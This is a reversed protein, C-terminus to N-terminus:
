DSEAYKRAIEALKPRDEEVVQTGPPRVPGGARNLSELAAKIGSIGYGPRLSRVRSIPELREAFVRRMGEQDGAAGRKWFDLCARPVFAALASTYARAGAPLAELAHTEGEAVWVLRNRILDGLARGMAVGGSPDKFGIVNPLQALRTIVSPWYDESGRPYLVIGIRVSECVDRFYRYAGDASESGYPPSFVLAADAGAKEANEVMRLALRYGGGAGVIVPLKGAAGAVAADAMARQEGADMTFLEGLGGGVVISMQEVPRAAHFAVNRRLGDADLDHNKRFPTVLFNHVGRLAERLQGIDGRPAAYATPRIAGVAALVGANRLLDRRPVTLDLEKKRGRGPRRSKAAPRARFESSVVNVPFWAIARARQNV